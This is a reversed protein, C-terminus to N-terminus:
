EGGEHWLDLVRPLASVAEEEGLDITADTHAKRLWTEQKRALRRTRAILRAELDGAGLEGARLAAVEKAGIIQLAERSVGPTELAYELEAVLGDDLERRVRAAILRELVERPRKLAIILTPRRMTESWLPGSGAPRGGSAAIALARAMRRPNAADVREAAEPDASRLARLAADPDRTALGEAWAADVPDSAAPFSLEGLAARLYLGTGGSVLPVRDDHMCADIARHARRAFDAASSSEDLGLDGVCHYVVEGRETAGPADAAIELGRYRQFPDAVIIEGGLERAAAHALASKGTATPGAIALM